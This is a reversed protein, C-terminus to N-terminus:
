QVDNSKSAYMPPQSVSELKKRIDVILSELKNLQEETFDAKNHELLQQAQYVLALIPQQHGVIEGYLAQFFLFLSM